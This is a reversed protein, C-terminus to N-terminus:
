MAALISSALPSFHVLISTWLPASGLRDMPSPLDSALVLDHAAEM